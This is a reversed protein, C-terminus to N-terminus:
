KDEAERLAGDMAEGIVDERGAGEAVVAGGTMVEGGVMGTEEVGDVAGVGRLTGGGVRVREWGITAGVAGAGM